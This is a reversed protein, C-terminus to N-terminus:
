TTTPSGPGRSRNSDSSSGVAVTSRSQSASELSHGVARALRGLSEDHRPAPKPASGDEIRDASKSRATGRGVVAVAALVLAAGLFSAGTFHEGALVVGLLVAIVPNVYAYSTAVAPRTHALLYSYATFGVLSGFLWLYLAAAIARGSPAAALREHIAASVVLNAMGGALMQSATRMMTGPPLPLRRGALSGIAWGLPALLGCAAGVPSARLEGELNLIAVGLLGLVVGGLERASVPVGFFRSALTTWVPVTAVLISTLGSSVSQEAVNVLANGAVFFLAGTLLASGWEAARPPAEGRWRAAVYLVAGAALFRAAGLGFPPFSELAVRIGLFTCGWVISVTVFAAVLLARRPRAPHAPSTSRVPPRQMVRM